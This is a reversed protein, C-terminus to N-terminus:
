TRHAYYWADPASAIFSSLPKNHTNNSHYTVYLENAYQGSGSRGTVFLSHSINNDRDFDVQLVDTVLMKWVNDLYSTRGSEHAAFWYWNEAAPWSYSTTWTFSGYFWKSNDARSDGPWSGVTSWGGYRTIQSVFNTCDGGNGGYTRYSGNYNSDSPGWYQNAYNLMASYDYLVTSTGAAIGPKAAAAPAARLQAETPRDVATNPRKAGSNEVVAPAAAPDTDPALEGQALDVVDGTLRWGNPTAQFTLRRDVGYEEYKPADPLARAFYLKTHETFAVDVSSGRADFVPHLVAVEARTHGGNVKRLLTRRADIAALDGALEAGVAADVAVSTLRHTTVGDPATLRDARDQLYRRALTVLQAQDAAVVDGPTALAPAGSLGTGAVVAM